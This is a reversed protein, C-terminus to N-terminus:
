LVRGARVVAGQALLICYSSGLSGGYATAASASVTKIGRMASPEIQAVLTARRTGSFLERAQLRTTHNLAPGGDRGRKASMVSANLHVIRRLRSREPRTPDEDVRGSLDQSFTSSVLLPQLRGLVLLLQLRGLLHRRM